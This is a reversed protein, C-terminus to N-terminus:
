LVGLLSLLLSLAIIILCILSIRKTKKMLGYIGFMALLPLIGPIIGDLAEQLVIPDQNSIVIQVPTSIYVYNAGLAGMMFIGLASALVILKNLLGGGLITSFANKGLNYGLTFMYRGEFYMLVAFLVAVVAGLYSGKLALDCAIGLFIPKLVTWNLSDGIGAFPGMLGVKVGTIAADKEDESQGMMTEEMSLAAGVVSAGILGETNFLEASRTLARKLGDDNGKYLKQLPHLFARCFAMGQMREFSHGVETWLHWQNYTKVVDRKTLLNKKGTEAVEAPESAQMTNENESM